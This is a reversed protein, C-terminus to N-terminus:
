TSDTGIGGDATATWAPNYAIEWPYGDPDIIISDYGGWFTAAPERGVTAGAARATATVADVEDRSAVCQALTIGGWGTGAQVCSDAALSSRDWLAVIMGRADFFVPDGDEGGTGTWGLAEYFARARAIDRVGLTIMNLHHGM